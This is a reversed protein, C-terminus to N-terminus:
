RSKEKESTALPSEGEQRNASGAVGKKHKKEGDGGEGPCCPRAHTARERPRPRVVHIGRKSLVDSPTGVAARKGKAKRKGGGIKPKKGRRGPGSDGGGEKRKREGEGLAGIKRKGGPCKEGRHWNETCTKKGGCCPPARSEKRRVFHHNKRLSFSGGKRNTEM